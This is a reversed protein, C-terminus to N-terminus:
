VSNEITLTLKRAPKTEEPLKEQPSDGEQQPPQEQQPPESSSPAPALIPVTGAFGEDIDVPSEPGSGPETM